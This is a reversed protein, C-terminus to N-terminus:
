RNTNLVRAISVAFGPDADPNTCSIDLSALVRGGAQTFHSDLADDFHAAGQAGLENASVNLCTVSNTASNIAEALTACNASGMCNDSVNLDQLTTNKKLAQALAAIGELVRGNCISNHSLDLKLVTKNNELENSLLVACGAGLRNLGLNLETENGKLGCLTTLNEKSEMLEILDQAQAPAISNGLLNV